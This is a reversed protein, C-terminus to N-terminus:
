GATSGLHTSMQQKRKFIPPSQLSQLSQVATPPDRPQTVAAADSFLTSLLAAWGDAEEEKADSLLIQTCVSYCLQKQESETYSNLHVHLQQCRTCCLPVSKKGSSPLQTSFVILRRCSLHIITQMVPASLFLTQLSNNTYSLSDVFCVSRENM